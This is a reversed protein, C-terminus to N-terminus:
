WASIKAQISACPPRVLVKMQSRAGSIKRKKLFHQSGSPACASLSISRPPGEPIARGPLAAALRCPRKCPLVVTGVTQGAPENQGTASTATVGTQHESSPDSQGMKRNRRCHAKRVRRTDYANRCSACRYQSTTFPRTNLQLSFVNAQEPPSGGVKGSESTVGTVSDFSGEAASLTGTVEAACDNSSGVTELRHGHALPICATQPPPAHFRRGNWTRTPRRSAARRGRPFARL